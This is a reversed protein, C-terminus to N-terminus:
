KIIVMKRTARFEEAQLQYFYVGSAVKESLNNTGDWYVSKDKTVYIGAKKLGLNLARILQGRTNYVRITVPSDSALQYPIWTEPNFPNPYNQLLATKEPLIEIASDRINSLITENVSTDMLRLPIHTGAPVNSLIEFEIQAITVDGKLAEKQAFACQVTGSNIQHEFDSQSFSDAKSVNILKLWDVPYKLTFQGSFVDGSQYLRIPVTVRGGAKAASSTIELRTTDGFAHISPSISQSEIPFKDILGVTYQLVLAADYATIQHNGTVDARQQQAPSLEILNVVHQLILSADYASVIGNMSVDGYTIDLTDKGETIVLFQDAPVDAFTQILGSPWRIEIVDAKTHDGLGFEVPLSDQCIGSGGSVERIQSLEGSVVKVRAGIGSWNSVTGVTKIHLWHNYWNGENRYLIVDPRAAVCIDLDGDNDYDGMTVGYSERDDVGAEVAINTFTGDGNNRYLVSPSSTIYLDLDGDNDYDGFAANKEVGISQIGVSKTVDTFTGDGNNQYLVNDGEGTGGVYFDLDGDNDYDGFVAVTSGGAHGVGAIETVDTFTGDGNNKYLHNAGPYPVYLDLDGDNDYDGFVVNYSSPGSVGTTETVDTFTGNGNNHFLVNGEFSTVYIDLYGDNDYDGFISGNSYQRGVVGAHSTVDTFTADGDNHYLIGGKGTVYIDLWGDNDYDGLALGQSIGTANLGSTLSVDTFTGNGKNQHLFIGISMDTVLIDLDGDNDYDGFAAGCLADTSLLNAEFATNYFTTNVTKPVVINSIESWNLVDDATKMALYYTTNKELNRLIFSESTGATAPKPEGDAMQAAKWWAAIDGGVPNTSYRIDYVTAVGKTDNDGPATWILTVTHNTINTAALDKVTAPPVRDIVTAHTENSYNSEGGHPESYVAAVVYYYTQDDIVETDTYTTEAVDAKLLQYPGGVTDSRYVNYHSFTEDLPAPADWTLPVYPMGSESSLQTPAILKTNINFSWIERSWTTIGISNTAAVKWFYTTYDELPEAPTYRSGNIGEIVTTSSTPFDIETSYYLSFTLPGGDPRPIYQWEFTPTQTIELHHDVPYRLSFAPPKGSGFNYSNTHWQDHFAMGWEIKELDYKGDLDWIHVIGDGSTAIVEIDGDKDVDALTPTRWIWDGTQKPWGQVPTGDHHWAFLKNTSPIVIEMQGDGNIDGVLPSGAYYNLGAKVSDAFRPWGTVPTGDHHWVVIKTGDIYKRGVIELDKDGDVDALSPFGSSEGQLWAGAVETGDSNFIKFIYDDGLDTNILIEPAEDSDLNGLVAVGSPSFNTDWITKPWGSLPTGDSKWVNLSYGAPAIIEINGDGDLDGAASTYEFYDYINKAWGPFNSGDGSFVYFIDWGGYIIELAGDHNLDALTPSVWVDPGDYIKRPWGAVISGDHHLAYILSDDSQVVIELDGDGDINGVAPSCAVKHGLATPWGPLLTGDPHWVYIEGNFNIAIIENVNDGDLDVVVPASAITNYFKM